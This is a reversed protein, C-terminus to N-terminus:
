DGKLIVGKDFWLHFIKRKVQKFCVIHKFCVNTVIHLVSLMKVQLVSKDVSNGQFKDSDKGLGV